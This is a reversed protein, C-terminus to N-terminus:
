KATPGERHKSALHCVIGAYDFNILMTQFRKRNIENGKAGLTVCGCSDLVMSLLENNSVDDNSNPVALPFLVNMIGDWFEDPLDQLGPM